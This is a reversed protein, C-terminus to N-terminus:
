HIKIVFLLIDLLSCVQVKDKPMFSRFMAEFYGCRAALIARHVPIDAEHLTLTMDCFLKQKLFAAMDLELTHGVPFIYFYHYRSCKKEINM